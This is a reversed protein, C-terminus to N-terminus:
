LQGSDLQPTFTCATATSSFVFPSAFYQWWVLTNDAPDWVYYGNATVPLGGGGTPQFTVASFPFQSYDNSDIGAATVGTLTQNAYGTFAIATFDAFVRGPAIAPSNSFLGIQYHNNAVTFSGVGMAVSGLRTKGVDPVNITNVLLYIILAATILIATVYM